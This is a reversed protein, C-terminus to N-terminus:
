RLTRTLYARWQAVFQAVSEHLVARMGTTVPGDGPAASAGVTRYLRLLGATGARAAILRCALWSEEYAQAARAAGAAFEADTPLAAPVTGAVVERRLEAAITTPPRRDGLNAVYEALGEVLWRPSNITTAAATAIHTIEHRLVTALGTPTLRAVSAPDLLVRAGTPAGDAGPALDFVTVASIDTVASDGGLADLETASSTVVVGVRQAWGTGIVGSVARVAADAAAGIAAPNVGSGPHSLVLSAAGRYVQVPGFDWPGRWSTGGTRALDDDAAAFVSGGRRVFTWWLDHVSPEPDVGALQYQLSLHVITAPAGFRKSAAALAAGDTVPSSVQYSWSQLPVAALAAIEASQRTRFDTAAGSADVDALFKSGSHGTVAAGHRALLASVEALTPPRASAGSHGGCGALLLAV